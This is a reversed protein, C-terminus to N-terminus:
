RNQAAALVARDRRIRDRIVQYLGAVMAAGLTAVVFLEFGYFIAFKVTLMISEM